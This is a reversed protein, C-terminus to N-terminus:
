LNLKFNMLNIETETSNIDSLNEFRKWFTHKEIRKMGTKIEINNRLYQEYFGNNGLKLCRGISNNETKIFNVDLLNEFRKKLNTYKERRKM